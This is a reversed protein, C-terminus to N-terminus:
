SDAGSVFPRPSRGHHTRRVMSPPLRRAIRPNRHSERGQATEPLCRDWQDSLISVDFGDPEETRLECFTETWSHPCRVLRQLRGARLRRVKTRAARARAASRQTTLQAHSLRSCYEKTRRNEATDDRERLNGDGFYHILFGCEDRSPCPRQDSARQSRRSASAITPLLRTPEEALQM